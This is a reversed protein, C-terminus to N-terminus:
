QLPSKFSVLAVGVWVIWALAFWIICCRVSAFWLLGFSVLALQFVVGVCSVWPWGLGILRLAILSVFACASKSVLGSYFLVLVLVLVLVLGFWVLGFWVM